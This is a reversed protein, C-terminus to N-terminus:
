ILGFVYSISKKTISMLGVYLQKSPLGQIWEVPATGDERCWFSLNIVSLLNTVIFAYSSIMADTVLSVVYTPISSYAM